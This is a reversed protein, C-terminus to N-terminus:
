EKQREKSSKKTNQINQVGLAVGPAWFTFDWCASWKAGRKGCTTVTNPREKQAITKDVPTAAAHLAPLGSSSPPAPNKKLSGFRRYAETTMTVCLLM